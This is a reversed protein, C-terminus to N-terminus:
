KKGDCYEECVTGTVYVTKGELYGKKKAEAAGYVSACLGSKMDVSGRGWLYGDAIKGEFPPQTWLEEDQVQVTDMHSDFHILKEGKGIRGAVNGTSDIWVEDYGLKEMEAKVLKAMNEEEDSYSRTRVARQVFDILEQNM